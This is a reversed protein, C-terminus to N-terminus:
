EVVIKEIRESTLGNVKAIYMGSQLSGLNVSGGNEIGKATFVVKGTLDLVTVDVPEQTTFNLLGTTPNPYMAFSNATVEENGLVGMARFAKSSTLSAGFDGVNLRQFVMVDNSYVEVGRVGVGGSWGNQFDGVDKLVVSYCDPTTGPLTVWHSKTANADPGGGQFEDEDGPQYPGGSAVVTGESDKIEWACEAPYFDTYVKVEVLNNNAQTSVTAPIVKSALEASAPAVGNITVLEVTYTSGANIAVNTFNINAANAFQNLTGTYEKTAIVTGNEKLVVTAATVANNGLNKLKSQITATMGSECVKIPTALFDLKAHNPKGVLTQCNNMMNRIEAPSAQDAKMTTKTGQCIVYMTPFYDVDFKNAAGLNLAETDEIIPYPVGEVWNGQSPAIPGQEGYLNATTTYQIDGEVFFVMAEDSGNPGYADYFDELAHTQHYGWCPACWTASFDIVVSKENNLYNYLTYPTGNIDDATFNPVVTGNVLSLGDNPTQASASIGAALLMGLLLNKKM